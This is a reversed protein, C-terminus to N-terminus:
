THQIIFCMIKSEPEFFIYLDGDGWFNMKEFYQKYWEDKPQINTRKTKIDIGDYTLQCLLKM